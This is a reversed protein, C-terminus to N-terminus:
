VVQVQAIFYRIFNQCSVIETQPLFIFQFLALNKDIVQFLSINISWDSDSDSVKIWFNTEM